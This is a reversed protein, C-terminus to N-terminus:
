TRHFGAQSQNFIFGVEGVVQPASQGVCACQGAQIVANIETVIQKNEAATASYLAGGLYDFCFCVQGNPADPEKKYVRERAESTLFQQRGAASFYVM